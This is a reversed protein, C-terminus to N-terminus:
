EQIRSPNLHPQGAEDWPAQPEVKNARELLLNLTTRILIIVVLQALDNWQSSVMTRLISAGVLFSLGLSFAYGMMLRSNQFAEFTQKKFFTESLFILLARIVGIAIVVLALLQCISILIGNCSQVFFQANENFSNLNM